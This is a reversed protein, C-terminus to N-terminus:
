RIDYVGRAVSKLRGNPKKVDNSLIASLNRQKDATEGLSLGRKEVYELIEKNTAQRGLSHILEITADVVRGSITNSQLPKKTEPSGSLGIVPSVEGWIELLKLIAGREEEIKALREKLSAINITTEM